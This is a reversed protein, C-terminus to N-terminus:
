LMLPHRVTRESSRPGFDSTSTMDTVNKRVTIKLRVMAMSIPISIAIKTKTLRTLSVVCMATNRSRSSVRWWLSTEGLSSSLISRAGPTSTYSISPGNKKPIALLNSSRIRRMPSLGNTRMMRIRFTGKTSEVPACLRSVSMWDECFSCIWMIREPTRGSTCWVRSRM